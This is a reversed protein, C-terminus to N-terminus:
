SSIKSSRLRLANTMISFCSLSMALAAFMPSLLIGFFPYLIGAAVPVGISNYAFAFFLNQRINKMTLQSLRIAKAIGRLDGQMLTVGASEIAVDTGTGMAIGVNAKALAPADNIGDGAMAVIKGQDRLLAIQELKDGPTLEAKFHDLGLQSAIHRATKEDDGTLMVINLGMQHLREIAAPTSEKIPDSVAIMGACQGDIASFVITEGQSQKEEALSRLPEPITIDNQELFRLRGILINKNEVKASVGEGTLSEFDIATEYDFNQQEAAEVIARAIPHESLKEVSACLQLLDDDSFPETGQCFTLSPKGETLTGTKDVLLTNVKELVEIAEADKFLVGEKAGKGIGVVLSVPTALGLACPCAIILVALANVFAYSLRPEVPSFLGWLVFTLLSISVIIPVFWSAAIDAIRQIPARSRQANAVMQVIQSLVTETGVRTVRMLFSGTQNVTGGYITEGIAKSVPTPEGTMMSEDVHSKGDILEGDLPVKEGPLVRLIDGQIVSEIPTEEEKGDRVRVALQPTLSLLERIASGTKKRARLELVQGFIVLITITAAAEFHIEAFGDKKFDAPILNPFLMAIVSYFYAAGIGLGLLTFMNLNWTVVSRWCRELIFWGAGAIVPTCLLFQLWQYNARGLREDIPMGLMPLMSLLFVPIGFACAFGLWSMMLDLEPDDDSDSKTVALPELAMGCKPCNAPVDSEVEPCMPCIYKVSPSGSPPNSAMMDLPVVVCSTGCCGTEKSALSGEPDANFKKQCSACCFYYTTDAHLATLDTTEDVQMGCIPDIAM